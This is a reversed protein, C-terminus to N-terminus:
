AATAAPLQKVLREVFREHNVLDAKLDPASSSAFLRNAQETAAGVLKTQLETLSDQLESLATEITPDVRLSLM